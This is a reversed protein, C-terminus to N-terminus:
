RTRLREQVLKICNARNKNNALLYSAHIHRIDAFRIQKLNKKNAESKFVKSFNNSVFLSSFDFINDQLNLNKLYSSMYLSIKFDLTIIRTRGTKSSKIYIKRPLNFFLLRRYIFNEKKLSLLECKRM